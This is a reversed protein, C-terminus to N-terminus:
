VRCRRSATSSCFGIGCAVQIAFKIPFVGTEVGHILREEGQEVLRIYSRIYEETKCAVKAIRKFDWGEDHLRKLERAFDM